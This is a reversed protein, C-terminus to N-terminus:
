VKDDGKGGVSKNSSAKESGKTTSKKKDTTADGDSAATTNSTKKNGHSDQTRFSAAIGGDSIITKNSTTANAESPHLEKTKNAASVPANDNDDGYSTANDTSNSTKTM